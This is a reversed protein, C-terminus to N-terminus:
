KQSLRKGTSDRTFSHLTLSECGPPFGSYGTGGANFATVSTFLGMGGNETPCRWYVGQNGWRDYDYYLMSGQWRWYGKNFTNQNKKGLVMQLPGDPEGPKTNNVLSVPYIASNNLFHFLHGRGNIFFHPPPTAKSPWGATLQETDNVRSELSLFMKNAGVNAQNVSLLVEIPNAGAFALNNFSAQNTFGDWHPVASVFLAFLSSVLLVQLSSAVM